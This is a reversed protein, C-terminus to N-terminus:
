AGDDPPQDDPAEESAPTGDLTVPNPEHWAETKPPLGLSTEFPAVDPSPPRPQGGPPTLAFPRFFWAAVRDM